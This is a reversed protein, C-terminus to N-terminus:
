ESRLLEELNGKPQPYLIDEIQFPMLDTTVEGCSPCKYDHTRHLGFRYKKHFMEVYQMERSTMNDRIFEIKQTIPMPIDLEISFIKELFEYSYKPKGKDDVTAALLREIENEDAVTLFRTKVYRENNFVSLPIKVYTPANEDLYDFEVKTLDVTSKFTEGCHACNVEMEKYQSYNQTWVYVLFYDRDHVSMRPFWDSNKAVGHLMSNLTRTRNSENSGGMLEEDRVMIDRFPIQSPYGLLGRSPLDIVNSSAPVEDAFLEEATVEKEAKPNEDAFINKPSAM